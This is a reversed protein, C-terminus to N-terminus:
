FEYYRERTNKTEHSVEELEVPRLVGGEHRQYWQEPVPAGYNQKSVGFQIFFGRRDEGIPRWDPRDSLIRAEEKTMKRVYGCWRANDILASAGRAAQQQDLLGDRASSKTTHHLFLIAAGTQDAIHELISILRSMDSNSNEDGSHVRSLTDIIVLRVDQCFEIVQDVHQKKLLDLQKGFIPRITLNEAIADRAAPNLYQGIAHLRHILVPETDEAAFYIVKGTHQPQLALLDGGPVSCAIAMAAELAWFSKGTGGPSVLAGVTGSLFGAFVYDLPQPENEFASIIDITMNVEKRSPPLKAPGTVPTGHHAMKKGQLQDNWDKATPRERIAGPALRYIEMALRDGARDADTAVVVLAGRAQAKQLTRELLKWQANSPQGSTSIYATQPDYYLQAHSLADIASEVIVIRRARSINTSHWLGKAGGSAFGTFGYNKLEYGCLGEQDYHPFVANQYQDIRIMSDFRPDTLIHTSIGRSRLYPHGGYPQPKTRLWATLVQVRDRTTPQPKPIKKRAVKIYSENLWQRLEKRVEGLTLGKRRQIFDIITGHDRDDRVSFYIGHGDQDTSVVIKDEARRMVVISRTSKRRDIEYGQALAYEVLNIERKFRELEYCMM